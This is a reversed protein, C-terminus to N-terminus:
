TGGNLTRGFQTDFASLDQDDVDKDGDLDAARMYRQEGEVSGHARCFGILDDGDV